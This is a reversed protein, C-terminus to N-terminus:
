GLGAAALHAELHARRTTTILVTGADGRALAARVGAVPDVRGRGAPAARLSRALTYLDAPRHPFRRPPPADGASQIAIVAMGRARAAQLRAEERDDLFPHVPAMMLDFRGSAIAADLEPGLGTVGLAAFAGASKLAALRTFLEDTLEYPDPGHLFLADVGEVGLRSLSARLSAELGDPTFDRSRRSM